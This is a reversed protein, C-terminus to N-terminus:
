VTARESPTCDDVIRGHRLEVMRWSPDTWLRVRLSAEAELLARYRSGAVLALAAPPGDEVISGEAVVIVRDFGSTEAIDHTICLLTADRWRERARRLLVARRNRELGRFPEDLIV